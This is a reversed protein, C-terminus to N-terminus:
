NNLCTPGGRVTGQSSQNASCGVLTVVGMLTTLLLISKM